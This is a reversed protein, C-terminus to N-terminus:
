AVKCLVYFIICNILVVIPYWILFASLFARNSSKQGDKSNLTNPASTYIPLFVSLVLISCCAPNVLATIFPSIYQGGPIMCVIKLLKQAM